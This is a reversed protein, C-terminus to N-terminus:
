VEYSFQLRIYRTTNNQLDGTFGGRNTLSRYYGELRRFKKCYAVALRM